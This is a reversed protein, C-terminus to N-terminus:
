GTSGKIRGFRLEGSCMDVVTVTYGQWRCSWDGEMRSPVRRGKSTCPPGRQADGRERCGSGGRAAHADWEPVDINFRLFSEILRSTEDGIM